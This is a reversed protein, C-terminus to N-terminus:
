FIMVKLVKLVDLFLNEPCKGALEAKRAVCDISRVQDVMIVGTVPLGEPIEIQLKNGRKTNTIPCVVFLSLKKHLENKSIVLARRYHMQEHGVAGPNFDVKIFDGRNPIYGVVM